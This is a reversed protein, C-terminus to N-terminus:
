DIITMNDFLLHTDSINTGQYWIRPSVVISDKNASGLFAGWWSFTSNSIVFDRCQKFVMIQEQAKLNQVFFANKLFGAEELVKKAKDFNNSMVVLQTEGRKEFILKIAKQYYDADSYIYKEGKSLEIDEAFRMSVAISEDSIDNIVNKLQESVNNLTFCNNLEDRLPLLIKVEQFYGYLFIDGATGVENPNPSFVDTFVFGRKIDKSFPILEKRMMKKHLFQYIRFSKIRTDYKLHKNKNISVRDTLQFDNLGFPWYYKEYERIDLVIDRGTVNALAFAYAFQFMQNGLGGRLRLYIKRNM